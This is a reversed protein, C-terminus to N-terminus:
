ADCTQGDRSTILPSGAGESSSEGPTDIIGMVRKKGRLSSITDIITSITDIVRECARVYFPREQLIGCESLSRVADLFREEGIAYAVLRMKFEENPDFCHADNLSWKKLTEEFSAADTLDGDIKCVVIHSVSIEPISFAFVTQLELVCWLRKLYSPSLLVLLKKCSGVSIPLTAFSLNKDTSSNRLCAADFWIDRAVNDLREFVAIKADRIAVSSDEWSHSIFHDIRAADKAVEKRTSLRTFVNGEVHRPSVKLLM